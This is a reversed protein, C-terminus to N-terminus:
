GLNAGTCLVRDNAGFVRDASLATATLGAAATTAFTRRTIRSM